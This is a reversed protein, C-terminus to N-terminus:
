TQGLGHQDIIRHGLTKQHARLEEETWKFESDCDICIITKKAEHSM